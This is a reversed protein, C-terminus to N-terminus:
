TAGRKGTLFIEDLLPIRRTIYQTIQETHSIDPNPHPYVSNDAETLNEAIASTFETVRRCMADPDFVSERLFAYRQEIEPRFNQLLRDWLLNGTGSDKQAPLFADADLATKGDESLGFASDMDYLSATFPQDEGYCVLILDSASHNTLGLAYISLLYDIASDVDLYRSLEKRFTEDDSEMVFAILANLKETAWTSDETGCFEVEWPSNGDFAAKARFFAEESSADNAILIAQRSGDQMGFLDDDKHLNFTYLGQFERNIYLAVPFGDVAGYNSLTKFATPIGDRSATM